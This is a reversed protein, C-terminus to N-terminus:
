SLWVDLYTALWIFFNANWRAGPKGRVRILNNNAPTCGTTDTNETKTSQAGNSPLRVIM